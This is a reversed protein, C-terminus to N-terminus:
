SSGREEIITESVPKGKVEIPKRNQYPTFDTIRPPIESIVGDELLRQDLLAEPSLTLSTETSHDLMANVLERVRQREAPTLAKLQEIVRDLSIRSM